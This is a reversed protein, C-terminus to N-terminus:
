GDCTGTGKRSRRYEGTTMGTEKKFFNCFASSSCFGCKEAIDQLTATADALLLKAHELQADQKKERFSKGYNKQLVRQTQRKSLNLANALEDLTMKGSSFLFFCDTTLTDSAGSGDPNNALSAIQPEYMEVFELILLQTLLAAQRDHYMTNKQFLEYITLFLTKIKKNSKGIWFTNEFFINLFFDESHNEAEFFLCYEQMPTETDTKQMHYMDPGTIYISNKKLQYTKQETVLEGKGDAIYHLEYCNAAHTHGPFDGDFTGFTINFSKLDIPEVHLERM